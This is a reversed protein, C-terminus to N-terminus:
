VNKSIIASLISTLAPILIPLFGGSQVILKKRKKSCKRSSPVCLNELVKRHPRLKNIQNKKLKLNGNLTNHAIEHLANFIKKEGGLQNLVSRKNKNNLKSVIKLVPLTKRLSTSIDM